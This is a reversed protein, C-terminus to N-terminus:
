STMWAGSAISGREYEVASSSPTTCKAANTRLSDRDRASVEWFVSWIRVQISTEVHSTQIERSCKPLEDPVTITGSCAMRAQNVVNGFGIRTDSRRPIEVDYRTELCQMITRTIGQVARNAQEVRGNSGKSATPTGQQRARPLEDSIQRVMEVISPEGDSQIM